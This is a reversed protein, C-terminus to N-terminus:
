QRTEVASPKALTTRELAVESSAHRRNKFSRYSELWSYPAYCYVFATFQDLVRLGRFLQEDFFRETAGPRGHDELEVKPFRPWAGNYQKRWYSVYREIKGAVRSPLVEKNRRKNLIKEGKVHNHHSGEYIASRDSGQLSTMRPDFPIALFECIGAMVENPQAVMEEYHIQHLPVGRRELAECEQKLKHYGIIARHLIGPKSFFSAGARARVMSRCIDALDRWIVLFRADPFEKSLTQLCDYYNPSKEGLVTAAGAYEKWVARAAAPLDPATESIKEKPIGHRSLASNWFEWRGQWDRKGGQRSFLPRLLFLDAEYMLGIHPHQNLLSYLLSTGSRWMGVVFLPGSRSEASMPEVRELLM